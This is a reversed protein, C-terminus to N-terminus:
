RPSAARLSETAEVLPLTKQEGTTLNKLVVTETDVEGPGVVIVNPISKRDAYNLQTTISDDNKLYLETKIGSERLAQAIQWSNQRLDQNFVTVLVEAAADFEPLLNWNELFELTTVDGPAFGVAAVDKVGFLDALGDYRGGGFMSRNNNPNLDFQEFVNGTYYDLGRMLAADFKVFRDIGREALLDFLDVVERAGDSSDKIQDVDALDLESLSLVSKVQSPSLGLDELQQITQHNSQKAMRDIVRMVQELKSNRIEFKSNLLHDVLKRNNIRIEFMNESAGFEKMIAVAAEIAEADAAVGPEGFIDLNLQFFERVRGKQPREYRMFNAISFWRIPKPLQQYRQAIMRAVTPTMEPRLAVKRGGRDEFWYLQENVIEEGSVNKAAYLEWAELFPGLYEEYGFKEAVTRWVGFLYRLKQMEPPFFDRTGRYPQTTLEQKKKEM